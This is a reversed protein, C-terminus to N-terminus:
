RVCGRVVLGVVLVVAWVVGGFFLGHQLLDLYTPPGVSSSRGQSVDSFSRDVLRGCHSCLYGKYTEPSVRVSFRKALARPIAGDHSYSAARADFPSNCGPCQRPLLDESSYRKRFEHGCKGCTVTADRITYPIRIWDAYTLKGFFSYCTSTYSKFTEHACHPCTVRGFWMAFALVLVPLAGLVILWFM